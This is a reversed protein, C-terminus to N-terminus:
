YDPFSLFTRVFNYQRVVHRDTGFRAMQYSPPLNSQDLWILTGQASIKKGTIALRQSAADALLSDSLRM